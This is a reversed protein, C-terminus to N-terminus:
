PLFTGIFALVILIACMRGLVVYYKRIPTGFYQQGIM